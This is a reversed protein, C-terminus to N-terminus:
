GPNLSLVELWDISSRRILKNDTIGPGFAILYRRTNAKLEKRIQKQYRLLFANDIVTSDQKEIDPHASFPKKESTIDKAQVIALAEQMSLVSSLKGKPIESWTHKRQTLRCTRDKHKNYKLTFAQLVNAIKKVIVDHVSGATCLQAKDTVNHISLNGKLYEDLMEDAQLRTHMHRSRRPVNRIIAEPHPLTVFEITKHTILFGLVRCVPLLHTQIEERIINVCDPIDLYNNDDICYKIVHCIKGPMIEDVKPKLKKM